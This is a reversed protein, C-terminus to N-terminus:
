KQFARKFSQFLVFNLYYFYIIYLLKIYYYIFSEYEITHLALVISCVVQPNGASEPQRECQMIPFM